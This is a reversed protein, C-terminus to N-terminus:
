RPAAVVYAIWAYDNDGKDAQVFEGTGKGRFSSEWYVYTKKFGAEELLDKVEPLTWLRWDYTFANKLIKGNGLKFHIAYKADHSIPDFSKQDWIYLFKEQKTRQVTKQERTTAIMGPGGAMELVLLGNARLSKLCSKFYKLLLKRSKFIYFSFNCAIILEFKQSTALLVDAQQIALRERQNKTMRPLHKKKGYNLPEPDLDLGLATNNRNRKVWACSLNFTGCFDERLHKPYQNFIERYMSLFWEMHVDPSQVSKEYLEYKNPM